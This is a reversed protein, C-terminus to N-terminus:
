STLGQFIFNGNGVRMLTCLSYQAYSASHGLANRVTTNNTSLVFQGSGSQYMMCNFGSPLSGSVGITVSTSRSIILMKGNDNATLSYPSTSIDRYYNGTLQYGDVNISSTTALVSASYAYSSTLSSTFATSGSIIIIKDPEVGIYQELMNNSGSPTRTYVVSDKPYYIIAM